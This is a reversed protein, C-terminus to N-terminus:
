RYAECSLVILLVTVELQYDLAHFVQYRIYKTDKNVICNM